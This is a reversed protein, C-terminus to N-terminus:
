FTIGCTSCVDVNTAEQCRVYPSGVSTSAGFEVPVSICINQTITFFCRGNEVGRCPNEGPTITPEGCCSVIPTGAIAFPTVTVSACITSPQYGVSECTQIIQGCVPGCISLQNATVGGGFLCVTNPGVLRPVTLEYCLNMEGDVKDLGFDFKLGPCGTPPDPSDTTRLEVNGGQGFEVQQKQGDIFVTVNTIQSEPIEDCIGIVLHSLDAYLQSDFGVGTITYCFRQNEGPEPNLVSDELDLEMVFPLVRDGIIESYDILTNCPLQAPEQAM